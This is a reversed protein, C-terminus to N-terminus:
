KFQILNFIIEVVVVNYICHMVPLSNSGATFWRVGRSMFNPLLVTKVITNCQQQRVQQRLLRNLEGLSNRVDDAQEQIDGM